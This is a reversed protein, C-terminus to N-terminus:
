EEGSGASEDLPAETTPPASSPKKHRYVLQALEIWNAAPTDPVGDAAQAPTTCLALLLVLLLTVITISGPM